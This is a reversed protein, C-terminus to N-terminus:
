VVLDVIGHRRHQRRVGGCMEDTVEQFYKFQIRNSSLGAGTLRDVTDGGSRAVEYTLDVVGSVKFEAYCAGSMLLLALLLKRM